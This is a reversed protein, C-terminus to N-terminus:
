RRAPDLRPHYRRFDELTQEASAIYATDAVTMEYKEDAEGEKRPAKVMSGKTRM